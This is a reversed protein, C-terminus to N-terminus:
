GSLNPDLYQYRMEDYERKYDTVNLRTYSAKSGSDPNYFSNKDIREAVPNDGKLNRYSRRVEVLPDFRSSRIPNEPETRM